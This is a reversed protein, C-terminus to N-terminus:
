KDEVIRKIIEFFLWGPIPSELREEEKWIEANTIIGKQSLIDIAKIGLEKQWDLLAMNNEEKKNDQKIIKIGFYDGIGEAIAFSMKDQFEPNNLMIEEDPNSIFLMEILTAPANSHKIVYFKAEKDVDGDSLDERYVLNPFTLKVKSHIKTALIDSNNQGPTTFIEFGKAISNNCSNCHLSVFVDPNFSNAIQMRKVLDQSLNSNWPVKDSDRTFCVDIGSSKLYNAVKFGVSMNINKEYTGNKGVAGSDYAGHGFDVCVLKSM